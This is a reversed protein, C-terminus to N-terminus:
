HLFIGCLTGIFGAIRIIINLLSILNAYSISLSGAIYELSAVAAASLTGLTAGALIVAIGLGLVVLAAALVCWQKKTLSCSFGALELHVYEDPGYIASSLHAVQFGSDYSVPSVVTGSSQGAIQKLIDGVSHVHWAITNQNLSQKGRELDDASFTFAKNFEELPYEPDCGLVKNYLDTAASMTSLDVGSSTDVGSLIAQRFPELDVSCMHRALLHTKQSLDLLDDRRLTKNRCRATLEPVKAVAYLQLNANLRDPTEPALNPSAAQGFVADSM